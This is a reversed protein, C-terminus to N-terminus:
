KSAKAAATPGLYTALYELIQRRQEPTVRLGYGAMEDIVGNWGERTLGSAAFVMGLDHCTQCERSVVERDPGAPLEQAAAAGLMAVTAGLVGFSFKVSIM